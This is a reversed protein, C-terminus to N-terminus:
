AADFRMEEGTIAEIARRFTVSESEPLRWWRGGGERRREELGFRKCIAAREPDRDPDLVAFHPGDGMAWGGIVKGDHFIRIRVGEGKAMYGM